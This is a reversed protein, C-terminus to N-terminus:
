RQGQAKVKHLAALLDPFDFGLDQARRMRQWAQEYRKTDYYAQILLRHVDPVSGTAEAAKELHGLAQEPQELAQLYLKGIGFEVSPEYRKDLQLVQQFAELAKNAQVPNRREIAAHMIVTAQLLAVQAEQPAYQRAKDLAKLAEDFNKSGQQLLGLKIHAQVNDEELRLAAQIEQVAQPLQGAREAREAAEFHREIRPSIMKLLVFQDGLQLVESVQGEKLKLLAARMAPQVEKLRLLGSYGWQSYEPGQSKARALASFSGGQQVQRRIDEATQRDAVAIRRIAREEQAHVHAWIGLCGLVLVCLWVVRSM